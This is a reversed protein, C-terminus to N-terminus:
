KNLVYYDGYVEGDHSGVLKKESAEFGIEEVAERREAAIPVVKTAIMKCDFLEFIPQVILNLIDLIQAKHEYNSRLDLRLLGCNNYYDNDSKRNFCEITGIASHTDKDIITWRVYMKNRYELLWFHIQQEMREMTTYHFDDGNCNDGNFIPVAKEDSYVSLLDSADGKEVLRLLYKENELVPCKEYVNMM